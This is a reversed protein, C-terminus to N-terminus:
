KLRAPKMAFILTFFPTIPIRVPPPSTGPQVRRNARHRKSRKAFTVLDDADAPTPRPQHVHDAVLLVVIRVIKLPQGLIHRVASPAGAAGKQM